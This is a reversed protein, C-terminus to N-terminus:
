SGWALDGGLENLVIDLRRVELGTQAEVRRIVHERLRASVAHLPTPYAMSVTLKLTARGGRVRSGSPRSWLSTGLYVERVEPVELAARCAIKTVARDSIETRGRREAATRREAPATTTAGGPVVATM